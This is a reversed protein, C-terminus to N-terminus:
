FSLKGSGIVAVTILPNQSLRNAIVLGATGGGVVVYDYPGTSNSQAGNATISACLLGFCLARSSLTGQIM